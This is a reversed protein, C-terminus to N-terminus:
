PLRFLPFCSFLMPFLPAYVPLLGCALLVLLVPVGPVDVLMPLTTDGAALDRTYQSCAPTLLTLM